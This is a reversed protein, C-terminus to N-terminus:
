ENNYGGNDDPGPGDYGGGNDGGTSGGGTDGGTNTGGGPNDPTTPATPTDTTGGNGPDTTGSDTGGGNNTSGGSSGAGSSSSPKGIYYQRAYLEIGKLQNYLATLEASPMLEMMAEITKYLEAIAKDTAMRAAKMEGKVFEGKPMARESLYQRVLRAQEVAKQFFTWAGIQTLFAQHSLFNQEMQILKDSEAAYSGNTSFKYDKYVQNCEIAEQKTPEGDPLSAHAMLVYHSATAYCDEKKDAEALRKVAPDRLVTLWVADENQRAQHVTGRTELFRANETQFGQVADDIQQTTGDHEANPLDALWTTPLQYNEAM